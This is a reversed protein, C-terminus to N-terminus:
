LARRPHMAPIDVENPDPIFLGNESCWKRCQEVYESFELTSLAATSKVTVPKGGEDRLLFILKFADHMENITYGFHEAPIAVVCGWYYRNQSHTRDKRHHRIIVDIEKGEFSQVYRDLSERESFLIKGDKVSAFFIPSINAVSRNRNRKQRRPFYM